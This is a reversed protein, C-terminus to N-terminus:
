SGYWTNSVVASRVLYTEGSTSTKSTSLEEWCMLALSGVVTLVKWRKIKKSRTAEAEWLEAIVSQHCCEASTLSLCSNSM